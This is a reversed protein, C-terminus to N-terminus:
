RMVMGVAGSPIGGPFPLGTLGGDSEIAFVGISLSGCNLVYLHRGDASIAMDLPRSGEGTVATRGDSDLPTLKGDAAIRYGSISGSLTNSTYAYRGDPTIVTWCAATQHTPVSASIVTPQATRSLRYSSVASVLPTNRFGESVILRGQPDFSFGFPSQGSSPVSRAPGLHGGGGVAYTVIRETALETVILFRGGPTFSVQAPTAADATLPAVPADIASLQGDPLITFGAIGGRGFQNAVYLLEGRVALSVPGAGLSPTRSVLRLTADLVAFASIDNSAANVVFLHRGDDSFALSGQSNLEVGTGRGDTSFRGTPALTGTEGRAFVAVENHDTANTQVFVREPQGTM